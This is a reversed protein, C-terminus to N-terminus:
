RGIRGYQFNLGSDHNPADDIYLAQVINSTGDQSSVEFIPNLESM